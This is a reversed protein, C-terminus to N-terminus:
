GEAEQLRRFLIAVQDGTRHVKAEVRGEIALAVLRRYWWGISHDLGTKERAWAIITGQAAWSRWTNIRDLLAQSGPGLEGNMAQNHRRSRGKVKPARLARMFAGPPKEFAEWLLEHIGPIPDGGMM